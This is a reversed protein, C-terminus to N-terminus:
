HQALLFMVFSRLNVFHYIFYLQILQQLMDSTSNDDFGM